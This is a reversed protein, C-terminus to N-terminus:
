SRGPPGVGVKPIDRRRKARIFNEVLLAAFLVGAAGYLAAWLNPTRDPTLGQLAEVAMAFVMLAPGIVLPRPWALSVLLTIGFYGLVHDLEWGLSTRPQWQAPGLGAIVVPVIAAISCFKAIAKITL